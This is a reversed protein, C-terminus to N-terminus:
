IIKEGMLANKINNSEQKLIQYSDDFEEVTMGYRGGVKCKMYVRYNDVNKRVYLTLNGIEKSFTCPVRLEGRKQSDCVCFGIKEINKAFEIYEQKFLYAKSYKEYTDTLNEIFKEKLEELKNELVSKIKELDGEYEQYCKYTTGYGSWVDTMYEYGNIEDYYVDKIVKRFNENSIVDTLEYYKNNDKLLESIDEKLTLRYSIWEENNNWNRQKDEIICNKFIEEKINEFMAKYEELSLM